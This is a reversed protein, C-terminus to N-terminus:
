AAMLPRCNIMEAVIEAVGRLRAILAAPVVRVRTDVVCLAGVHIGEKTIMPHGVYTRIHPDGVVLPNNAFREDNAANRVVFTDDQAITYNCFAECRPLSERPFGYSSKLWQTDEDIFTMLCVPFAMLQAVHETVLDFQREPVANALRKRRIYALRRKEDHPIPYGFTAGRSDARDPRTLGPERHMSLSRSSTGSAEFTALISRLKHLFAPGTSVESKAVCAAAGLARLRATMAMNGVANDSIVIKCVGTLDGLMELLAAGDIYPMCLDITVLDPRLQRIMAAASEADGAVGVVAFAKSASFSNDLMAQITRSDDVIVVRKKHNDSAMM